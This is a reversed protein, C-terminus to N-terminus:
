ISLRSWLVASLLFILESLETIAGFHDGTLGGFRKRLIRLMALAFAYLIAIIIGCFLAVFLTSPALLHSLAATLCLAATGITSLVLSGAGAHEIFIRGLGDSRASIGHYMAPVTIWKSLVPM